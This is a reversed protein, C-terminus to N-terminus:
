PNRAAPGLVETDIGTMSVHYILSPESTLLVLRVPMHQKKGFNIDIIGYCQYYTKLLPLCEPGPIVSSRNVGLDTHM